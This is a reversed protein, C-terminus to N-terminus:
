AAAPLQVVEGVGRAKAISLATIGGRARLTRDAGESHWRIAISADSNSTAIMLPTMRDSQRVNPSKGGDLLQAVAGPRADRDRQITTTTARTSSEYTRASASTASRNPPRPSRCRGRGAEGPARCASAFKGEGATRAHNRRPQRAAAGRAQLRSRLRKRGLGAGRSALGPAGCRLATGHGLPRTDATDMVKVFDTIKRTPRTGTRLWCPTASTAACSTACRASWRASETPACGEACEARKKQLDRAAGFGGLQERDLGADTAPKRPARSM